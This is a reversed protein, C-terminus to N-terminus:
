TSMISRFNNEFGADVQLQSAFWGMAITALILLLLLVKKAGFLGNALRETLTKHTNETHM